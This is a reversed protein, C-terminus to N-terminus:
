TRLEFEGRKWAQFFELNSDLLNSLGLMESSTMWGFSNVEDPNPRIMEGPVIEASWWNLEFGRVSHSQWLHGIPNVLISLEEQMERVLAEAVSEGSELGGGPFCVKGPARVTQSRTITLFKGQQQIVAVAARKLVCVNEPNRTEM